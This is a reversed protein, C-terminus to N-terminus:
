PALVSASSQEETCDTKKGSSLTNCELVKKYIIVFRDLYLCYIRLKLSGEPFRRFPISILVVCSLNDGVKVIATM